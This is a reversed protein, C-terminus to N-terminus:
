PIIAPPCARVCARNGKRCAKVQDRIAGDERCGTRCEYAVHIAEDLCAHLDPNPTNPDTPFQERCQAKAAKRDAKCGEKCADHRAQPGPNNPDGFLCFNRGARCNEACEHDINRCLDKETRFEEKCLTVCIRKEEKAALKCEPDSGARAASAMLVVALAFAVGAGLSRIMTMM